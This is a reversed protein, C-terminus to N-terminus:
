LAEGVAIDEEKLTIEIHGLESGNNREAAQMERLACFGIRKQRVLDDRNEVAGLTETEVIELSKGPMPSVPEKEDAVAIADEELACEQKIYLNHGMSRM